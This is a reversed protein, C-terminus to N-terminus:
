AAEQQPAKPPKRDRPPTDERNCVEWGKGAIANLQSCVTKALAADMNTADAKSGSSAHKGDYYRYYKTRYSIVSGDVAKTEFRKRIIM